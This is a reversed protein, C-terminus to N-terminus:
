NLSHAFPQMQGVQYPVFMEQERLHERAVKIAEEYTALGSRREEGIEVAWPKSSERMHKPKWIHGIMYNARTIAWHNTSQQTIIM